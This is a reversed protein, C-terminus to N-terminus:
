HEGRFDPGADSRDEAYQDIVTGPWLAVGSHHAARAIAHASVPTTLVLFVLALLAKIGAAVFGVILFTGFLISCTGLTVCKTAAQLRNYVDPFRVLGLCGALNFALGLAIFILGLYHIWHPEVVNM